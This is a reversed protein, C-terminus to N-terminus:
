AAIVFLLYCIAFQNYDFQSMPQCLQHPSAGFRSQDAITNGTQLNSQGSPQEVHGLRQHAAPTTSACIGM